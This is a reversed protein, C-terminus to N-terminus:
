KLGEKESDTTNLNQNKNVEVEQKITLDCATQNM